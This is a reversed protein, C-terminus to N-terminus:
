VNANLLDETKQKIYDFTGDFSELDAKTDVEIVILPPIDIYGNFSQIDYLILCM